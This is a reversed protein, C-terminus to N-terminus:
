SLLNHSCTRRDLLSEKIQEGKQAHGILRLAMAVGKRTLFGNNEKDAIAWIEGLVTPPLNARAFVEVAKEGTVIGLKQPDAAAFVTNVLALEPQTPSFSSM